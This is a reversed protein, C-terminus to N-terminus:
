RRTSASLLGGGPVQRDTCSKCEPHIRICVCPSPEDFCLTTRSSTRLVLTVLYGMDIHSIVMEWIMIGYGIDIDLIVVDIHNIVMDIYWIEHRYSM